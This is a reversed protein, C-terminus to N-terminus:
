LKHPTKQTNQEIKSEKNRAQISNHRASQEKSFRTFFRKSPNIKGNYAPQSAGPSSMREQLMLDNRSKGTDKAVASKGDKIKTSKNCNLENKENQNEKGAKSQNRINVKFVNSTENSAANEGNIKSYIIYGHTSVTDSKSQQQHHHLQFKWSKRAAIEQRQLHLLFVQLRNQALQHNSFNRRRLRQMSEARTVLWLSRNLKKRKCMWIKWELFRGHQFM